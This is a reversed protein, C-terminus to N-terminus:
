APSPLTAEATGVAAALAQALRDAPRADVDALPPRVIRVEGERELVEFETGGDRARRFRLSVRAGGVGVDRLTVEPLWAPLHPDVILTRLPALPTLGLMTDVLSIVAAASWAQPACAGPYLGPHPHREDRPMGGFVEPLRADTFLRSAAFVSEAIRHMAAVAGFRGCGRAILSSESPWV